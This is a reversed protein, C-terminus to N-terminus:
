FWLDFLGQKLDCDFSEYIVQLYKLGRSYIPPSPHNSNGTRQDPWFGQHFQYKVTTFKPSTRLAWNALDM